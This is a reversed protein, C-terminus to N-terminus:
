QYRYTFGAAAPAAAALRPVAAALLAALVEAGRVVHDRVEPEATPRGRVGVAHDTVYGVLAYPLGAEGCLVTEPGGTQSIASVGAGALARVEAATNYRPGDVHGYVGGDRLALGVDAAAGALATRVPEAFPQDHIWHGRDPDGPETHLTALEGGPLRNSPFYLDDFLVLEGPALDPDLAGCATGGVVATVDLARLAWVNARHAVHNSLRAHGPGHRSIHAAGAGGLRGRHVTVPGHPTALEESAPQELAALREAGTGTIVGVEGM